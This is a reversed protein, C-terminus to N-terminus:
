KDESIGEERILLKKWSCEHALVARITAVILIELFECLIQIPFDILTRCRGLLLLVEEAYRQPITYSVKLWHLKGDHRHLEQVLECGWFKQGQLDAV